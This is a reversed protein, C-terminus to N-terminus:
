KLPDGQAQVIGDLTRSWGVPLAGNPLIKYKGVLYKMYPQGLVCRVITGNSVFLLDRETAGTRKLKLPEGDVGLPRPEEYVTKGSNFAARALGTTAPAAEKAVAAAVTTPLARLQKKLGAFAQNGVKGARAM